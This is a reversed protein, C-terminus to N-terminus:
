RGAGLMTGPLTYFEKSYQLYKTLSLWCLATGTGIMFDQQKLYISDNPFMVFILGIIHLMNSLLIVFTWYDVILM